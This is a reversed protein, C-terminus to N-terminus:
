AGALPGSSDTHLQKTEGNKCEPYIVPITGPLLECNEVPYGAKGIQAGGTEVVVDDGVAVLEIMDVASPVALLELAPLPWPLEDKDVCEDAVVLRLADVVAVPEKVRALEVVDVGLLVLELLDLEPPSPLM